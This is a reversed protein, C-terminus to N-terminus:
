CVGHLYINSCTLNYRTLYYDVSVMDCREVDIMTWLLLNLYRFNAINLKIVIRGKVYIWRCMAIVIRILLFADLYKLGFVNM